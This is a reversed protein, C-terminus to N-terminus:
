TIGQKVRSDAAFIEFCVFHRTDATRRSDAAFINGNGVTMRSRDFEEVKCVNGFRHFYFLKRELDRSSGLPRLEPFSM